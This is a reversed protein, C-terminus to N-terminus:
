PAVRTEFVDTRNTPSGNNVQVFVTIFTNGISSVGEYDGLFFGFPGRAAPAQEIDFSASSLRAEDSWSAQNACNGTCHVIWADTPVGPNAANNRFDYSTDAVSGNAAVHVQPVFAQEDAATANRPTQNVKIPATWTFGGDSSLSLAVEDVGSFRSDQWVAYLKCSNRDVALDPLRGEARSPGGTDPDLPSREPRASCVIARPTFSPSMYQSVISL